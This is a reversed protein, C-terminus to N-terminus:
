LGGRRLVRRLVEELKRLLVEKLSGELFGQSGCVGLCPFFFSFHCRFLTKARLLNFCMFLLLAFTCCSVHLM